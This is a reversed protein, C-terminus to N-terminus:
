PSQIAFRLNRTEPVSSLRVRSRSFIDLKIRFRKPPPYPVPPCLHSTERSNVISRVYPRTSRQDYTCKCRPCSQMNALTWNIDRTRCRSTCFLSISCVDQGSDLLVTAPVDVIAIISPSSFHHGYEVVRKVADSSPTDTFSRTSYRYRVPYNQYLYSPFRFECAINM